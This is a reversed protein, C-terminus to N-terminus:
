EKAKIKVLQGYSDIEETLKIHKRRLDLIYTEQDALEREMTSLLKESIVKEKSVQALDQKIKGFEDLSVIKATSILGTLQIRLAKEYLYAGNLDKKLFDIRQILQSAERVTEEIAVETNFLQNQLDNSM